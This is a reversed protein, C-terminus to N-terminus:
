SCQTPSCNNDAMTQYHTTQQTLFLCCLPPPFSLAFTCHEKNSDWSNIRCLVILCLVILFTVIKLIANSIGVHNISLINASSSLSMVIYYHMSHRIIWFSSCSSILHKVYAKLQFIYEVTIDLTEVILLSSGEENLHCKYFPALSCLV